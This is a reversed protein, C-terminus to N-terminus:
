KKLLSVSEISMAVVATIYIYDTKVRAYYLTVAALSLVTVIVRSITKYKKREKKRLPKNETESPARWFVMFISFIVGPVLIIEGFQKLYTGSMASIVFISLSLVICEAHTKAHYGGAFTRLGSFFIIFILLELKKNLIYSVSFLILLNILLSLLVEISYIYVEKENDSSNLKAGIGDSLFVSIKNIM